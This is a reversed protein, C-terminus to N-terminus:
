LNEDKLSQRVLARFGAPGHKLEHSGRTIKCLSIGLKDAIARQSMGQELLRVLQWRLHIKKRETPTLMASLFDYITEVDDTGALIEALEALSDKGPM